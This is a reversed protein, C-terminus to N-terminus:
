QRNEKEIEGELRKVRAELMKELAAFYERRQAAEVLHRRSDELARQKIEGATPQRFLTTIWNM